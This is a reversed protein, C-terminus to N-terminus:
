IPAPSGDMPPMFPSNTNIGTIIDNATVPQGNMTGIVTQGEVRPPRPRPRQGAATTALLCPALTLGTFFVISLIAQRPMHIRM